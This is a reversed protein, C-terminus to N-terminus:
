NNIYCNSKDINAQNLLKTQVETTSTTKNRVEVFTAHFMFDISVIEVNRHISLSQNRTIFIGRCNIRITEIKRESEPLGQQKCLFQFGFICCIKLM